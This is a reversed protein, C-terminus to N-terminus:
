IASSKTVPASDPAVPLTISQADPVLLNLIDCTVFPALEVAPQSVVGPEKWVLSAKVIAPAPVVALM